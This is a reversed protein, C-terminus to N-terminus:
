WIFDNTTVSTQFSQKLLEDIIDRYHVDQTILAIISRRKKVELSQKTIIKTLNNLQSINEQLWWDLGEITDEDTEEILLQETFTCWQISAVLSISQAPFDELVWEHRKFDESEVRFAAKADKTSRKVFLMMSDLLSNLWKEVPINM